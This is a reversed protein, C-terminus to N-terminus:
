GAEQSAGGRELLRGAPTMGRGARLRRHWSQIEGHRRLLALAGPVTVLALLAGAVADIPYHYGLYVTSPMIALAVGVTAWGLPQDYRRTALGWALTASVHSAPFVAGAIPGAEGEALLCLRAFLPGGYHSHHLEALGPTSRPGLAPVLLFLFFNVFYTLAVVGGVALLDDYRGRRLFAVSIVVPVLYYSLYVFAFLEDLPSGYLRQVAVTLSTGFLVRDADALPASANWGGALVPQVLDMELYAWTFVLAAYYVRLLRVLPASGPRAALMPLGLAMALLAAHGALLPQWPGVRDRCLAILVAVAALYGACLLDM